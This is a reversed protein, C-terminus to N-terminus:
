SEMDEHPKSSIRLTVTGEPAARITEETSPSEHCGGQGRCPEGAEERKRRLQRRSGRQRADGGSLPKGRRVTGGERRLM